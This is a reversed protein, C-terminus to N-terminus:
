KQNYGTYNIIHRIFFGQVKVDYKPVTSVITELINVLHSKQCAHLQGNDSLAAPFSQNAHKMFELLDCEQSQCTIFLQFFFCCDDKFVHEKTVKPGAQDQCLFDIKNKM